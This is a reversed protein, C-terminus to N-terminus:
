KATPHVFGIAEAVKALAREAEVSVSTSETYLRVPIYRTTKLEAPDLGLTAAALLARSDRQSEELASEYAKKAASLAAENGEALQQIREELERLRAATEAAADLPGLLAPNAAVM